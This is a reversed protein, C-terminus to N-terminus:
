DPLLHAHDRHWQMLKLTNSKIEEPPEIAEGRQGSPSDTAFRQLGKQEHLRKREGLEFLTKEPLHPVALAEVTRFGDNSQLTGLARQGAEGGNAWASITPSIAKEVEAFEADNLYFKERLRELHGRLAASGSASTQQAMGQELRAFKEELSRIKREEDSLWEDDSEGMDQGQSSGTHIQGTRAFEEALKRGGPHSSIQEFGHIAKVLTDAGYQSLYQALASEEGGLAQVVKNYKAEASDKGSQFSRVQEWAFDPSSKIRSEYDASASHERSGDGSPAPDPQATGNGATPLAAPPDTSASM